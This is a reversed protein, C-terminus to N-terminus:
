ATVLSQWTQLGAIGDVGLGHSSQYSRVATTTLAGFDGDTALSQGHANLQRQLAEVAPGTSGESTTVILVPWTQPGVEGDVSLGHASQFAEVDAVTQPGFDSDISLAYGHAELMLQISAVREGTSGQTVNPWSSSPPPPSTTTGIHIITTDYGETYGVHYRANNHADVLANSGTQVLLATHGEGEHYITVDGPVASAPYNGIDSGIGNETLYQYLGKTTNYGSESTWGVWLLNYTTGNRGVYYQYASQSSNSTLGPM